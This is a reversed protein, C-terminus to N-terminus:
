PLVVKCSTPLTWSSRDTLSNSASEPSSTDERWSLPVGAVSCLILLLMLASKYERGVEQSSTTTTQLLFTGRVRSAKAQSPLWGELVEVVRQPVESVSACNGDGHQQEEHPTAEPYDLPDAQQPLRWTRKHRYLAPLRSLRAVPGVPVRRGSGEFAARNTQRRHPHRDQERSWIQSRTSILLFSFREM